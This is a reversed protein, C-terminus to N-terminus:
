PNVGDLSILDLTVWGSIEGAEVYVYYDRDIQSWAIQRIVVPTCQALLGKSQGKASRPDSPDSTAPVIGPYEWLYYRTQDTETHARCVVKATVPLHRLVVPPLPVQTAPLATSAGSWSCSTLLWTCLLTFVRISKM